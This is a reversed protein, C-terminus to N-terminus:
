TNFLDKNYEFTFLLGEETEAAMVSLDFKAIPSHSEIMEISRSSLVPFEQKMNQKILLELIPPFFQRPLKRYE